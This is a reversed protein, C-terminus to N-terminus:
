KRKVRAGSGSSTRGAADMLAELRGGAQATWLARVAGRWERWEGGSGEVGEVGEVGGRGGGDEGTGDAGAGRKRIM